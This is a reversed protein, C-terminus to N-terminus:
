ISFHPLKELITHVLNRIDGKVEEPLPMQGCAFEAGYFLEPAAMSVAFDFKLKLYREIEARDAIPNNKNLVWIVRSGAQLGMKEENKLAEFTDLGSLVRSPLPDIVGILLDTQRWMKPSDLVLYKGKVATFDLFDEAEVTRLRKSLREPLIESRGVDQGNDMAKVGSTQKENSYVTKETSGGRMCNGYVIWNVNECLNVRTEAQSNWSKRAAQPDQGDRDNQGNQCKRGNGRINGPFNDADSLLDHFKKRRFFYDFCMRDYLLSEGEEPKRCEIYAATQGAEAILRAISSALFTAGAGRGVGVVGIRYKQKDQLIGRNEWPLAINEGNCRSAGARAGTNKEKEAHDHKKYWGM